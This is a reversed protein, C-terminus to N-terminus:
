RGAKAGGVGETLNLIMDTFSHKSPLIHHLVISCDQAMHCVDAADDFVKLVPTVANVSCMPPMARSLNLLGPVDDWALETLLREGSSRM